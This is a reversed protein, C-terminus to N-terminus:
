SRSGGDTRKEPACYPCRTIPRGNCRIDFGIRPYETKCTLCRYWHHGYLGLPHYGAYVLKGTDEAPKSPTSTISM